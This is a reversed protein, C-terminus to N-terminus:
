QSFIYFSYVETFCLFGFCSFHVQSLFYRLDKFYHFHNKLICLVYSMYISIHFNLNRRKKLLMCFFISGTISDISLFLLTSLLLHIVKSKVQATLSNSFDIAFYLFSFFRFITLLSWVFKWLLLCLSTLLCQFLRLM